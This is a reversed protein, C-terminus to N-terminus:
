RHSSSRSRGGSPRHRSLTRMPTRTSSSWVNACSTSSSHAM